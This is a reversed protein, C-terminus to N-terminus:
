AAPGIVKVVDLSYRMCLVHSTMTGEKTLLHGANEERIAPWSLYKLLHDIDVGLHIIKINFCLDRWVYTLAVV